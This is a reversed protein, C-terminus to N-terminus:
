FTGVEKLKLDMPTKGITHIIIQDAAPISIYLERGQLALGCASAILGDLVKNVKQGDFYILSATKTKFSFELFQLSTRRSYYSNTAYFNQSDLAQVDCLSSFLLRLLMSTHPNAKLLNLLPYDFKRYVLRTFIPSKVPKTVRKLMEGEIRLLEVTDTQKIPRRLNVVVVTGRAFSLGLPNM